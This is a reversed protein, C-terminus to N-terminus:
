DKATVYTVGDKEERVFDIPGVRRLRIDCTFPGVAIDNAVM